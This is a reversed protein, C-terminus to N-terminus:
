LEDLLHGAAIKLVTHDFTRNTFRRLFNKIIEIVTKSIKLNFNKFNQKKIGLIM